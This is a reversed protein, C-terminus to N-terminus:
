QPFAILLLLLRLVADNAAYLIRKAEQRLFTRLLNFPQIGKGQCVQTVSRLRQLEGAGRDAM